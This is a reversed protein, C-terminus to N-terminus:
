QNRYNIKILIVECSPFTAKFSGQTNVVSQIYDWYHSDLSGGVLGDAATHSLLSSLILGSLFHSSGEPLLLTVSGQQHCVVDQSM